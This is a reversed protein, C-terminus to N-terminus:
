ENRRRRWLRLGPGIIIELRCMKRKRESEKRDSDPPQGLGVSEEGCHSVSLFEFYRNNYKYSKSFDMFNPICFLIKCSVPIVERFGMFTKYFGPHIPDGIVLLKILQM